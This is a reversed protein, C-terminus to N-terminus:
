QAMIEQRLANVKENEGATLLCNIAARRSIEEHTSGRVDCEVFSDVVLGGSTLSLFPNAITFKQGIQYTVGNYYTEVVAIVVTGSAFTYTSDREIGYYVILPNALYDLRADVVDGASVNLATEILLKSDQELYYSKSQPTIRVRRYPNRQIINKRDYTLPYCPHWGGNSDKIKLALLHRYETLDSFGIFFDDDIGSLSLGSSIDAKQVLPGLEDRVRQVRQFADSRNMPRNQDYSERVKSDISINLANDLDQSEFRTSSVIDM